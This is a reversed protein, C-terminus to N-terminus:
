SAPRSCTMIQLCEKQLLLASYCRGPSVSRYVRPSPSSSLARNGIYGTDIICLCSYSAPEVVSLRTAIGKAPQVGTGLLHAQTWDYCRRRRAGRVQVQMSPAALGHHNMASTSTHPGPRSVRGAQDDPQQRPNPGQQRAPRTCLYYM